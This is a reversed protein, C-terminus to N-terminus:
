DTSIEVIADTVNIVYDGAKECETFMDSYLVGTPYDYLKMEIAEIHEKKLINRYENIEKELEYAPRPNVARYDLALNRCMEALAEDVLKFFHKIKVTCDDPLTINQENRRQFARALYLASDGIREIESVIKLMARVRKSNETSLRSEAVQTLYNAIQIDIKDSEEEDKFFVDFADNFDNPKMDYSEVVQRFMERTTRGFQAIELKAQFLSADPTSLLGMKIHKLTFIEEKGEKQPMVKTVVKAIYKDFWVLILVNASKALTNFLALALPMSLKISDKVALARDPDTIGLQEFLYPNSYMPSIPALHIKVCLWGVFNLFPHFLLFIWIVGFVNILFHAFAARKAQTNAVMAALNATITTGINEGMVMAAADEFGIWGNYCMVLTLAMTAASAQFIMTLVAGVMLFFMWSALGLNSVRQVFSSVGPYDQIDAPMSENLFRIAIFLLGFGIVMEGITKRNRRKSFIFPLTCGVIPLALDSMSIEGFGFISVLWGTLTTGINAGLIVGIAGVLDMLGANVFSVVMVTTASSSQILATIILGTLVGAFKNSTMAALIERMRNGALKQLSESMLKMGYLFVALAGILKLFVFLGSNM